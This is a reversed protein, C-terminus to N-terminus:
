DAGNECEVLSDLYVRFETEGTTSEINWPETTTVLLIDAKKEIVQCGIVGPQPYNTDSNLDAESVVATKELFKWEYGNVDIFECEVIGPQPEDSVFRTISVEIGLM